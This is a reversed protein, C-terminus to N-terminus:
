FSVPDRQPGPPGLFWSIGWHSTRTAFSQHHLFPKLVQIIIGPLDKEVSPVADRATFYQIGHNKGVALGLGPRYSVPVSVEQDVVLGSGRVVLDEASADTPDM